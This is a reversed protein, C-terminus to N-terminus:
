ESIGVHWVGLCVKRGEKEEKCCIKFSTVYSSFLLHLSSDASILFTLADSIKPGSM